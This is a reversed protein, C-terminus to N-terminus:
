KREGEKKAAVRLFEERRKERDRTLNKVFADAAWSMFPWTTVLPRPLWSPAKTQTLNQSSFQVVRGSVRNLDM